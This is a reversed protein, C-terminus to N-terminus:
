LDKLGNLVRSAYSSSTIVCRSSTGFIGHRRTAVAYYFYDRCARPLSLGAWAVARALGGGTLSFTNLVATSGVEYEFTKLNCLLISKLAYEEAGCEEILSRGLDSQQAAFSVVGTADLACVFQGFCSCMTCSGDILLVWQVKRRAM